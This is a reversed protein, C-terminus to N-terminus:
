MHIAMDTLQAAVRAYEAELEDLLVQCGELKSTRGAMEFRGCIITMKSAGLSSCSGKMSHAAYNVGAVDGDLVATQLAAIRVPIDDLFIGILRALLSRGNGGPESLSALVDLDVAPEASDPRKSPMGELRAVDNDSM